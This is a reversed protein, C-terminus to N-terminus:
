IYNNNKIQEYIFFGIANGIFSRTLCYGLGITFQKKNFSEKYTIGSQVRTKIVDIPYTVLWSLSGSIGGSLLINTNTKDNYKTLDNYIGFYISNGICERLLTANFGRYIFLKTNINLQKRIKLLELPTCFISNVIGTVFGSKYESNLYKKSIENTGFGISSTMVMSISSETLGAFFNTRINNNKQLRTKLTDLPYTFINQFIGSISGNIYGNIFSYNNNM